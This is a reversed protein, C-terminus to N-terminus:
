ASRPDNRRGSGVPQGRTKRMTKRSLGLSVLHELFPRFDVVMEEGVVLDEPLGMWSRPWEVLDKCYTEIGTAVSRQLSSEKAM